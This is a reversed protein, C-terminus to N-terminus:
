KRINPDRDRLVLCAGAGFTAPTSMLGEAFVIDTRPACAGTHFALGFTSLRSSRLVLELNHRADSFRSM